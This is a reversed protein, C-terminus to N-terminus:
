IAIIFIDAENKMGEHSPRGQRDCFTVSELVRRRRLTVHKIMISLALSYYPLVMCRNKVYSNSASSNINLGVNRNAPVKM